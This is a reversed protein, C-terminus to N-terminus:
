RWLMWAVTLGLSAAMVANFIMRNRDTNLFRGIASGFLAWVSVCPINVLFFTLAIAATTSWLPAGAPLFVSATTVSMVWAKPNIFQFAAGELFTMPKAEAGMGMKGATLLRWTLYLLYATCVWTLTQHILPYKQFVVGLGLCMLATQSAAGFGIGIMHPLTARYGFHAGSATIMVNNPGPTISMVGVYSMLSLFDLMASLM